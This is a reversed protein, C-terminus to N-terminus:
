REPNFIPALFREIQSQDTHFFDAAAAMAWWAAPQAELSGSPSPRM